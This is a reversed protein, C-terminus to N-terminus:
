RRGRGGRRGKRQQRMSEFAKFQEPTLVSRLEKVSEYRHVMQQRHLQVLQDIVAYVQGDSVGDSGMLQRLEDRKSHIEQRIGQMKSRSKQRGQQMKQRQEDSIGLKQM